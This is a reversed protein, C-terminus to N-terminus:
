EKLVHLLRIRSRNIILHKILDLFIKTLCIKKRKNRKILDKALQYIDNLSFEGNDNKRDIFLIFFLRSRLIIRYPRCHLYLISVNEVQDQGRQSFFDVCFYSTEFDMQILSRNVEFSWMLSSSSSSSCPSLDHSLKSKYKSFAISKPCMSRILMSFWWFPLFERM